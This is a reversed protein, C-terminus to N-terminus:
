FTRCGLATGIPELSPSQPFAFFLKQIEGRRRRCNEFLQYMRATNAARKREVGCVESELSEDDKDCEAM